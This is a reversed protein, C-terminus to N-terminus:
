IGRPFLRFIYFLFLIALVIAISLSIKGRRSALYGASGYPILYLPYFLLKWELTFDHKLMFLYLGCLPWLLVGSLISTIKDGTIYGYAIIISLPIGWVVIVYEPIMKMALPSMIDVCITPILPLLIIMAVKGIIKLIDKKEM